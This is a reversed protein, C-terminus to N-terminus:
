DVLGAWALPLLLNCLQDFNRLGTQGENTRMVLLALSRSDDAAFFLDRAGFGPTRSSLTYAKDKRTFRWLESYDGKTMWPSSDIGRPM